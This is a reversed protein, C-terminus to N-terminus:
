GGVLGLESIVEDIRAPAGGHRRRRPLATRRRLAPGPACDAAAHLIDDQPVLGIRQRLEDYEAYLDRGAYEVRGEDAPRFGTLAKLLTSKGAGSPGVVALLSKSELSFGVDRLLAKGKATRVVIGEARFGVEGADVHEVLRDGELHLLVHGIGVVDDPGIPQQQIRRGNVFTGNASGLDVLVWRDGERQLEAHHRSALLDAIVVDNLDDRGIRLRHPTTRLDHVASLKGQRSSRQAAVTVNEVLPPTPPAASRSRLLLDVLPADPESGLRVSLPRELTRRELPRGDVFSGNRSVDLIEWTTGAPRVVLHRRSVQPGLVQLDCTEDRGIVFETGPRVVRRQGAARIELTAVAHADRRHGGQDLQTM